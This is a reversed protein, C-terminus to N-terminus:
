PAGKQQGRRRAANRLMEVIRMNVPGGAPVVVGLGALVRGDPGYIPAAMGRAAPHVFGEAVSYGVEQVRHVVELLEDLTQPTQDTYRHIGSEVVEELFEQPRYSLLVHGIAVACLCFRGGVVSDNFVDGP